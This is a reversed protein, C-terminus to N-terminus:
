GKQIVRRNNRGNNYNYIRIYFYHLYSLGSIEQKVLLSEKACPIEVKSMMRM